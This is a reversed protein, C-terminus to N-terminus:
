INIRNKEENPFAVCLRPIIKQCERIEADDPLSSIAGKRSATMAGAANAYDICDSIQEISISEATANLALIRHLFAGLFSDGCATTDQVKTHYTDLHDIHSHTYYTCGAAGKTVLLLRAPTQDFVMRAADRESQCETLFALEEDSLKIIDAYEMGILSIKKASELDGEWLPFRLNPDYVKVVKQGDLMNLTNFLTSRAPDKTLSVGGYVFIRANKIASLPIDEPCLLMDAGPKRYFSFNRNGSQDLTVFAITTHAQNTTKIYQTDVGISGIYARLWDGFYDQGVMSILACKQGLKSAQALVNCPAGGASGQFALPDGQNLMDILCEGFAIIDM